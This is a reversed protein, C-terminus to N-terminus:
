NHSVDNTRRSLEQLAGAEVILRNGALDLLLMAVHASLRHANQEGDSLLKHKADGVLGADHLLDFVGLLSPAYERLFAMGEDENTIQCWKILTQQADLQNM